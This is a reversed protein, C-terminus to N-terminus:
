WCSGELSCIFGPAFYKFFPITTKKLSFFSYPYWWEKVSSDLNSAKQFLWVFVWWHIFKNLQMWEWYCTSIQKSAELILVLSVWLIHPSNSYGSYRWNLRYNQIQWLLKNAFLKRPNFNCWNTNLFTNEHQTTTFWWASWLIYGLYGGSPNLSLERYLDRLKGNKLSAM